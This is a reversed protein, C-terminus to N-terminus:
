PVLIQLQAKIESAIQKATEIYLDNALENPDKLSRNAKLMNQLANRDRQNTNVMNGNAPYLNNSNGGYTAYLVEDKKSKDVISSKLMTATELSTLKYQISLKAEAANFYEDYTVPNYATEYYAKGEANVKKVMYSEFANRTVKNLSGVTSTQNLVTGSIIAKAGAIKGVEVAMSENFIGSMQFRQEALISNMNERDVVKLFPDNLKTLEDLLYAAIKIDAGNIPTGNKFPLLALTYMGKDLSQAKLSASEKYNLKREEVKLIGEYCARYHKVEFDQQAKQYIPEIYAIDKLEGADKFNPDLAAIENFNGEAESFKNDELLKTGNEYLETLYDRKAKEYDANQYDPILLDVGVGAIKNKYDRAEHFAYVAEKRSGFSNKQSFDNLKTNLVLQGNKKLGIQADLNARKKILATYYSEAAERTLGAAEQKQGLKTFHKSNQCATFLLALFLLPIYRNM